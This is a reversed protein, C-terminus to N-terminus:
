SAYKKDIGLIHGSLWKKLFQALEEGNAENPNKKYQDILMTVLKLLKKHHEQHNGLDGYNMKLMMDEEAKFHFVTFDALDGLASISGQTDKALFKSYFDNM